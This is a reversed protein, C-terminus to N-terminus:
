PAAKEPAPPKGADAWDRVLRILGTTNHAVARGTKGDRSAHVIFGGELAEIHLAPPPPQAYAIGFTHPDQQHSKDPDQM